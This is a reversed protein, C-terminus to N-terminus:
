DDIEEERVGYFWIGHNDSLYKLKDALPLEQFADDGYLEESFDALGNGYSYNEFEEAFKITAKEAAKVADGYKTYAKVPDAADAMDYYEDNYEYGRKVVVYVKAM